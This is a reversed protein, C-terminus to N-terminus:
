PVLYKDALLEDVVAFGRDWGEYRDIIGPLAEATQGQNDHLLVVEDAEGRREAEDARVVARVVGDPDEGLLYDSPDVTWTVPILEQERVVERFGPLSTSGDLYTNACSAM